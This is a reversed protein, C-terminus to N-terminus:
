EEKIYISYEVAFINNHMSVGSYGSHNHQKEHNVNVVSNDGVNDLLLMMAVELVAM